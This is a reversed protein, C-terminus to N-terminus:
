KVINIDIHTFHSLYTARLENIYDRENENYMNHAIFQQEHADALKKCQELTAGRKLNEKLININKVYNAPLTKVM